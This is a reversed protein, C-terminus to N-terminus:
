NFFLVGLVVLLLLSFGWGAIVGGTHTTLPRDFVVLGVLGFSDLSSFSAAWGGAEVSV